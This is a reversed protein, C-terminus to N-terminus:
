DWGCANLWKIQSKKSAKAHLILYNAITMCEGSDKIKDHIILCSCWLKVMDYKIKAHLILSPIMMIEGCFIKSKSYFDLITLRQLDREREKPL